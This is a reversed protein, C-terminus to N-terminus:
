LEVFHFDAYQNPQHNMEQRRWMALNQWFKQM